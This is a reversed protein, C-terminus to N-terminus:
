VVASWDFRMSCMSRNSTGALSLTLCRNAHSLGFEPHWQSEVDSVRAGSSQWRLHGGLWSLRGGVGENTLDVEPHFYVRSLANNFRGEIFDTVELCGEKLVWRRRHVPRGPLRRYGDHAAEIIIAGDNEHVSIDFPRARRAVRFGAWVESSDHADIEVTSHAATSREFERMEGLGYRSTGSNVVIRQGDLSLEYSLTDAHAHGPLYDPGVPAVDVILLVEWSEVRIYGSAKLWTVGSAPIPTAHGLRVAYDLLVAPSPAIDMAADNFFAIEGDPHCMAALWHGMRELLGPWESTEYQWQAFERPYASALNALDLMDEYALAHYMPSREFHGGDALIQEPLEQALIKMGEGLWARAEEGAFYCGAFVLAKANVFLHNGLLHYELRDRLSRVQIALSERARDDLDNGALSWKVWNVIRLSLPYPEWGVGGAPPNDDIWRWILARHWDGRGSAGEANLDDFYHLHYLWLKERATDDWDAARYVSGIHNLFRFTSVDLMSAMRMAPAIWRGANSRRPPAPSQDPRARHLRYWVRWVIQRGRMHRLTHFYLGVQRMLSLM